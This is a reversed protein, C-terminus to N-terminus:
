FVLKARPLFNLNSEKPQCALKPLKNIAHMKLPEVVLQSVVAKVTDWLEVIDVVHDGVLIHDPTPLGKGFNVKNIEAKLKRQM